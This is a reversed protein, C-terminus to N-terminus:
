KDVRIEFSYMQQLNLKCYNMEQGLQKYNCVQVFAEITPEDWGEEPLRRSSLLAKILRQRRALAQQGQSIYSKSVLGCAQECNAANMTWRCMIWGHM